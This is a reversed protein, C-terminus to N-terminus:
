NRIQTWPKKPWKPFTAKFDPLDKLGPWEQESPTGLKQFIKFVTDIESDGPFLPGGSAMEAFVCGVGWMDVPISYLKSGLLIELPRYWVTVVEHTYQPIPLSFARALGFDAIKLRMNADILLNQPKLDRHIIRSAHCFEMGALLQRAFDKIQRPQLSGGRAKMHKKLDSDLLEFVLVLEGPKCFVEVLEVINEHSLQKLIAIERIATSPLGEDRNGIKM